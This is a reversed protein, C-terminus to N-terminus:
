GDKIFATRPLSFALFLLVFCCTRHPLFRARREGFPHKGGSLCYYMLCGMAFVDSPKGQRGHTLREAAQWGVTGAGTGHSDFYSEDAAMQRSLGMDSLKARGNATILVNQPKLDRHVIGQSHLSALGSAIDGLITWTDQPCASVRVRIPRIHLLYAFSLSLARPSIPNFSSILLLVLM